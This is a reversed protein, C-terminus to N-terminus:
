VLFNDLAVACDDTNHERTAYFKIIWGIGDFHGITSHKVAVM